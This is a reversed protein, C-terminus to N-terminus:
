SRRSRRERNRGDGWRSWPSAAACPPSWAPTTSRTPRTSRAASGGPGITATEGM